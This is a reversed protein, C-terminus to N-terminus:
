ERILELFEEPLQSEIYDNWLQLAERVEEIYKYKDYIKELSSRVDHQLALEAINVAIGQSSFWTRMVKRIGHPDLERSTLAKLPERFSAECIPKSTYESNFVYKCSNNQTRQINKLLNYIQTTMPKYYDTQTKNSGVADSPIMIIKKEFDCYGWQLNRCEGFRFGTLPLLLYFSRTIRKTSSLPAFFKEKMEKPPIYKFGKAKPRPFPSESGSLLNAIPNFPILGELVAKNMVNIIVTTANHKNGPTQNVPKMLRCVVASNIKDLRLDAIGSREITTNFLTKINSARTSGKKYKSIKEPFWTDTFYSRFTPLDNDEDNRQNKNKYDQRIQHAKKRADALSLDDPYYGLFVRTDIDKTTVRVYLGVLGSKPVNAFVAGGCNILGKDHNGLIERICKNLQTETLNKKM